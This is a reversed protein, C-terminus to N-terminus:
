NIMQNITVKSFADMEESYESFNDLVFKKFEVADKRNSFLFGSENDIYKGDRYYNLWMEIRGDYLCSVKEYGNEHKTAWGNEGYYTFEITISKKDGSTDFLFVTLYLRSGDRRSKIFDGNNTDCGILYVSKGIKFEHQSFNHIDYEEGNNIAYKELEEARKTKNVGGMDRLKKAASIYTSKKLENIESYKKIHKM